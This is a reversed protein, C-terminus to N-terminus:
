SKGNFGAMPIKSTFGALHNGCKWAAVVNSKICTSKMAICQHLSKLKSTLAKLGILQFNRISMLLINQKQFLPTFFNNHSFISFIFLSFHFGSILLLCQPDLIM